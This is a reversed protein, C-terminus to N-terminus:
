IIMCKKIGHDLYLVLERYIFVSMMPPKHLNTLANKLENVISTIALIGLQLEEKRYKMTHKCSVSFSM